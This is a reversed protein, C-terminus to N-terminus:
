VDRIPNMGAAVSKAGEFYTMREPGIPAGSRDFRANSPAKTTRIDSPNCSFSAMPLPLLGNATAIPPPGVVSM